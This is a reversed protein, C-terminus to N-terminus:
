GGFLISTQRNAIDKADADNRGSAKAQDFFAQWNDSVSQANPQNAYKATLAAAAQEQDARFKQQGTLAQSIQDEITRANLARSRAGEGSLAQVMNNLGELSATQASTNRNLNANLYDALRTTAANQNASMDEGRALINTAADQLGLTQLMNQLQNRSGAFGSNIVNAAATNAGEYGAKGKTYIDEVAPAMGSIYDQAAQYIAQLRADDQTSRTKLGSIITDYADPEPTKLKAELAANRATLEDLMAQTEPDIVKAAAGLVQNPDRGVTADGLGGGAVQPRGLFWNTISGGLNGLNRRVDNLYSPLGEQRDSAKYVKSTDGWKPKNSTDFPTKWLLEQGYPSETYDAM